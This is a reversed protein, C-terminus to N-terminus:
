TVSSILLGWFTGVVYLLALIALSEKLSRNTRVLVMTGVGSGVLLGAMMAGSSLVGAIYLQVIAVSSACNPILGVLASIMVSLTDNSQLVRELAEKGVIELTMNLAFTVVFVFAAVTLTHLVSERVLHSWSKDHSHASFHCHKEDSHHLSNCQSENANSFLSKRHSARLITDVALGSTVSIVFKTVLISAVTGLPMQAAIFLPLMEDSTALFAAFLTGLTIVRGAYLLALASSFGCQPLLGLLSGLLPGTAGAKEIVAQTHTSAKSELWELGLYTVLLFPILPLTDHASHELTHIISHALKHDMAPCELPPRGQKEQWRQAM